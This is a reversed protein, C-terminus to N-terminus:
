QYKKLFDFKKQLYSGVKAEWATGIFVIILFVVMTSCGIIRMNNLDGEVIQMGHAQFFKQFKKFDEFYSVWFEM